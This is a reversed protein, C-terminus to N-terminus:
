SQADLVEQVQEVTLGTKGAIREAETPERILGNVRLYRMIAAHHAAGIIDTWQRRPMLTEVMALAEDETMQELTVTNSAQKAKYGIIPVSSGIGAWNRPDPRRITRPKYIHRDFKGGGDQVLVVGGDWDSPADAGGPWYKFGRSTAAYYAHNAPLKIETMQCWTIDVDLDAPAYWDFQGRAAIKGDDRLWDPRVGDVQIANGWEIM